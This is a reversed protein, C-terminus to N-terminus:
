NSGALLVKWEPSSEVEKEFEVYERRKVQARLGEITKLPIKKSTVNALWEPLSGGPNAHVRYEAETWKGHNTPKLIWHGKLSPMRVVGKQPPVQPADIAMFPIYVRHKDPEVLMEARNISDRDSVPWPAKTRNYSIQYRSGINEEVVFSNACAPMWETRRPADKIVGLVRGIPAEIVGRGFFEKLNSGEVKRREVVIGGSDSVREWGEDARARVGLGISIAAVALCAGLRPGRRHNKVSIDMRNM